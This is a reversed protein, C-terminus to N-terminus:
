GKIKIVIIKQVTGGCTINQTGAGPVESYMLAFPQDGNGYDNSQTVCKAVGNYALTIAGPAGNAYGCAMVVLRQGAVTTVSMPSSTAVEVAILDTNGNTSGAIKSQAIAAASNIDANLISDDQINASAVSSSGGGFIQM